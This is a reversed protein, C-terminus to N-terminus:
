LSFFADPLANLREYGNATVLIDDELRVGGIEPLYIGPEITIVMGAKLVGQYAPSLFPTEHIELGFGHGLGHNFQEAYGAEAILNRAASDVSKLEVGDKVAELAAQKANAVIGHIETIKKLIAGRAIMRTLDSAYGRYSTGWDLLFFDFDAIAV